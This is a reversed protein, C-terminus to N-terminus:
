IVYPQLSSPDTVLYNETAIKLPLQRVYDILEQTPLYIKFAVGVPECNEFTIFGRSDQVKSAVSLLGIGHGNKKTTYGPEFLHSLMQENFHPGSNYLRIERYAQLHLTTGHLRKQLLKLISGDQVAKIEEISCARVSIEINGTQKMAESANKILDVFVPSLALKDAQVYMGTNEYSIRLKDSFRLASEAIYTKADLLLDDVTLSIPNFINTLEKKMSYEAVNHILEVSKHTSKRYESLKAKIAHAIQPSVGVLLDECEAQLLEAQMYLPAVGNNITHALALIDNCLVRKPKAFFTRLIINDLIVSDMAGNSGSVSVLRCISDISREFGM